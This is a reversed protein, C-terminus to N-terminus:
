TTRRPSQARLWRGFRRQLKRHAAVLYSKAGSKNDLALQTSIAPLSLGHVHHLYLVRAELPELDERIAQRFRVAIQEGSVLDEASIDPSAAEAPTEHTVVVARERRRRMSRNIATSRTVTYLWTSFRSDLNFGDLREHVRLFVEQALDAAVDADGCVRLSWRAVKTYYRRYLVALCDNAQAKALHRSRVVLEEDTLQELRDSSSPRRMLAQNRLSATKPISTADLLELAHTSM